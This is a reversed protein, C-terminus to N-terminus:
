SQMQMVSVQIIYGKVRNLRYCAEEKIYCALTQKDLRHVAEFMVQSCLKLGVYTFTICRSLSDSTLTVEWQCKELDLIPAQGGVLSTFAWLGSTATVELQSKELDLIPVWVDMPSMLIQLGSLTM